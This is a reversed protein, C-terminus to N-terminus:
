WVRLTDIHWLDVVVCTYRYLVHKKTSSLVPKGGHRSDKWWSHIRSKTWVFIPKQQHHHNELQEFHDFIWSALSAVLVEKKAVVTGSSDSSRMFGGMKGLSKWWRQHFKWWWDWRDTIFVVVTVRWPAPWTRRLASRTKPNGWLVFPPFEPPFFIMTKMHSYWPFIITSHSKSHLEELQEHNVYPEFFPVIAPNSHTIYQIIEHTTNIYIYILEHIIWEGREQEVGM